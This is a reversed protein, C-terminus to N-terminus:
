QQASKTHAEAKADPKTAHEFTVRALSAAYKVYEGNLIRLTDLNWGNAPSAAATEVPHAILEVNPMENGFELLSRPMHYAATVIILRRYGHERAWDAAERANGRTDSAHIGLDACCDFRPGGHLRAKLEAKKTQPNVGTILLRNGVGAELLSVASLLRSDGGTLAVIADAEPLAVAQAEKGPLSYIYVAFGALYVVLLMLLPRAFSRDQKKHFPREM